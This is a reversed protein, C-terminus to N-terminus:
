KKSKSLPKEEKAKGYVWRGLKESYIKERSRDKSM